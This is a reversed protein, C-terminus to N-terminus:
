NAWNIIRAGKSCESHSPEKQTIFDEAEVRCSTGAKRLASIVSPSFGLAGELASGPERSKTLILSGSGSSVRELIQMSLESLIQLLRSNKATSSNGSRNSNCRPQELKRWQPSIFFNHMNRIQRGPPVQLGSLAKSSTNAKFSNYWLLLQTTRIVTNQVRRYISSQWWSRTM